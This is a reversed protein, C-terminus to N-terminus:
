ALIISTGESILLIVKLRCFPMFESFLMHVFWLRNNKTIKRWTIDDLKFVDARHYAVKEFKLGNEKRGTQLWVLKLCSRILEMAKM